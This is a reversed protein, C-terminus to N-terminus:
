PVLSEYKTNWWSIFLILSSIAVANDPMSPISFMESSMILWAGSWSDWSWRSWATRFLSSLQPSVRFTDTWYPCASTWPCAVRVSTCWDWRQFLSLQPLPTLAQSQMLPVCSEPTQQRYCSIWLGTWLYIFAEASLSLSIYVMGGRALASLLM